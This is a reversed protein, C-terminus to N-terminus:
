RSGTADITERAAATLEGVAAIRGHAVALDARRAPAGLGDLLLAGRFVFDYM